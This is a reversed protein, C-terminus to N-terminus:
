SVLIYVKEHEFGMQLDQRAIREADFDDFKKINKQLDKIKGELRRIKNKHRMLEQKVQWYKKIGTESFFMSQIGFCLVVILLFIRIFVKIEMVDSGFFTLDKYIFFTETCQYLMFYFFYTKFTDKFFIFLLFYIIFFIGTVM